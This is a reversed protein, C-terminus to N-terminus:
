EHLYTSLIQTTKYFNYMIYPNITYVAEAQIRPIDASAPKWWQIVGLDCGRLQKQKSIGQIMHLRQMAVKVFFCNEDQGTSPCWIPKMMLTCMKSFLYKSLRRLPKTKILDPKKTRTSDQFVILILSTFYSNILDSDSIWKHLEAHSSSHMHTHTHSLGHPIM